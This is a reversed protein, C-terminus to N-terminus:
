QSIDFDFGAITDVPAAKVNVSHTQEHHFGEEDCTGTITFDGEVDCTFAPSSLSPDDFVIAPDNASWAFVSSPPFPVPNGDKDTAKPTIHALKGAIISFDAM